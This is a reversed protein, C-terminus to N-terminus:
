MNSVNARTQLIFPLKEERKIKKKVKNISKIKNQKKGTCFKRTTIYSFM